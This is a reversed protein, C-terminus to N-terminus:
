RSPVLALRQRWDLKSVIRYDRAHAHASSAAIMAMVVCHVRTDTRAHTHQHCMRIFHTNKNHQTAAAAAASQSASDLLCCCTSCTSVVCPCIYVHRLEPLRGRILYDGYYYYHFLCLAGCPSPSPASSRLCVSAGRCHRAFNQRRASAREGADDGADGDDDDDDVLKACVRVNLPRPILQVVAIITRQRRARLNPALHTHWITLLM